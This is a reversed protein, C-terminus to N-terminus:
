SSPQLLELSSCAALLPMAPIFALSCGFLALGGVVSSLYAVQKMHM